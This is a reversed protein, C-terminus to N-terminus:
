DWIGFIDINECYDELDEEVCQSIGELFEPNNSLYTVLEGIKKKPIKAGQEEIAKQIETKIVIEYAERVTM